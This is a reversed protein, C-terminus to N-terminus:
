TLLPCLIAGDATLGVIIQNFERETLSINWNSDNALARLVTEKEFRWVRLIQITQCFSLCVKAAKVKPVSLLEGNHRAGFRLIQGPQADM